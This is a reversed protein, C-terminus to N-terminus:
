TSCIVASLPVSFAVDIPALQTIVAVGNADGASIYNGTDITRLGVRGAVPAVVRSYGLNLRATNENARDIVLTGERASDFVGGEGTLALGGERARGALRAILQEDVADLVDAGVPEGDVLEDLDVPQREPMVDTM